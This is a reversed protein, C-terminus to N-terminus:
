PMNRLKQEAIMDPFRVKQGQSEFSALHILM